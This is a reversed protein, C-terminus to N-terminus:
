DYDLGDVADLIEVAKAVEKRIAHWDEILQRVVTEGPSFSEVHLLTVMGKVGGKKAGLHTWAWEDGAKTAFPFPQGHALFNRYETAAGSTKDALKEIREAISSWGGPDGSRLVLQALATITNLKQQAALNATVAWSVAVQKRLLQAVVLDLQQELLGWM